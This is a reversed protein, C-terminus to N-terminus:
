QSIEKNLADQIIAAGIPGLLWLLIFTMVTSIKKATYEQVAESFKMFWYLSLGIGIIIGLISSAGIVISLVNIITDLPSTSDNLGQANGSQSVAQLIAVLVLCIYSVLTIFLYRNSPIQLKNREDLGKRVNIAWYLLYLNFTILGLLLVVLPKRYPVTAEKM